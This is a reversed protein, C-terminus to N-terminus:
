LSTIALIVLISKDEAVRVPAQLVTAEQLVQVRVQAAQPQIVVVRARPAQIIAPGQHHRIPTPIGAPRIITM